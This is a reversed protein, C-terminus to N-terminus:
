FASVSSRQDRPHRHNPRLPHFVKAVRMPEAASPSRNLCAQISKGPKFAVVKKEAVLVRMGTKPNRAVRGGRGRISLTGFGRLEVRDGALLGGSIQGLIAKVAAEVDKQYLHPNRARIRRILKSKIM